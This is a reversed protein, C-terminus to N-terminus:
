NRITLGGFVAAGKIILTKKPLSPDIPYRRTKDEVAGFVGSGMVTIDWTEPVRIEGGGFVATVELVAQDGQMEAHTFDLKFGGFVANIRGGKFDKDLVQHDTGSFFFNLDFPLEDSSGSATVRWAPGGRAHHWLMIAGACIITIPWFIEWGINTIGRANLEMIVGVLILGAGFFLNGGPKKVKIKKGSADTERQIVGFLVGSGSDSSANAAVLMGALIFLMRFLHPMFRHPLIGLQNLLLVAGVMIIVLAVIVGSQSHTEVAGLGEKREMDQKLDSNM